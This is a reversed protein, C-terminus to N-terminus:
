WLDESFLERPNSTEDDNIQGSNLAIRRAPERRVFNGDDTLFGQSDPPVLAFEDPLLEMVNHHRAPSPLSVILGNDLKIAVSVINTM